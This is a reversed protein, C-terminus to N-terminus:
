DAQLDPQAEMNPCLHGCTTRPHCGVGLCFPRIVNTPMKHVPLIPSFPWLKLLSLLIRQSWVTPEFMWLNPDSDVPDGTPGTPNVGAPSLTCDPWQLLQIIISSCHEHSWTFQFIFGPFCSPIDQRVEQFPIRSLSCKEHKVVFASNPKWGNIFLYLKGVLSFLRFSVLSLKNLFAKIIYGFKM